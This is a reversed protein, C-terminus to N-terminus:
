PKKAELVEKISKTLSDVRAVNHSRVDIWIGDITKKDMQIGKKEYMSFISEAQTKIEKACSSRDLYDAGLFSLGAGVIRGTTKMSAGSMPNGIYKIVFSTGYTDICFKYTSKLRLFYGLFFTLFTVEFVFTYCIFVSILERGTVLWGVALCFLLSGFFNETFFYPICLIIKFIKKFVFINKVRNFIIYYLNYKSPFITVFTVSTEDLVFTEFDGGLNLFIRNVKKIYAEKFKNPIEGIYSVIQKLNAM